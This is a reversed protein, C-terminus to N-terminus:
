PGRRAARPGHLPGPCARLGRRDGRGRGRRVAAPPRRAGPPLRHGRATGPGAGDAGGGPPRDRVRRPLEGPVVDVEGSLGRAAVAQRLASLVARAGARTCCGGACAMVRLAPPAAREAARCDPCLRPIFPGGCTQVAPTTAQGCRICAQPDALWAGGGPGAPRRLVVPALLAEELIRGAQPVLFRPGEVPAARRQHFPRGIHAAYGTAYMVAPAPPAQRGPALTGPEMALLARVLGAYVPAAPAEGELYVPVQGVVPFADGTILLGEGAPEWFFAVEGPAADQPLQCVLLGGPLSDGPACTRDVDEVIEVDAGPEPAWVLAGAARFPAGLPALAAHTLLVHRVAGAEGELADRAGSDLPPPDILVLGETTRLATGCRHGQAGDAWRWVGPLVAVM